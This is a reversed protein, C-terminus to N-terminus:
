TKQNFAGPAGVVDDIFLYDRLPTGDSNINPNKDLIASRMTDPIIRSFDLDGPGYINSCRTVATNLGYTYAYCRALIDACAKSVDYPRLAQLSAGEKYPLKKGHGYAKNSSAVVVAKTNCIRAIELVNWTGTINIRFTALPSKEAIDTGAKAALHFCIQPKYFKFVKLLFTFNVVDLKIIKIEPNRLRKLALQLYSVKPNEKILGIVKAKNKLLEISLHSGIFGNAGTILIRKGKWFNDM